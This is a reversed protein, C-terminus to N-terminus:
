LSEHMAELAELIYAASLPRGDFRNISADFHFGSEMRLYKGFQNFANMEVNIIKDAKNFYPKLHDPDLPYLDRFHLLASDQDFQEMAELIADKNSGWSVFLIKPTDSGYYMPKELDKRILDLKDLVRKKYNNTVQASESYFGDELHIHSDFLLVSDDYGSYKAQGVLNTEDYLKYPSGKDALYNENKLRDWQVQMIETTSDALYQDTLVIVPVRYKHALDMARNTTYLCDEISDPALIIRPFEGQAAGLAQFFDAQETRTPLGTAPGPRMVNVIVVPTEAIAALGIGETM